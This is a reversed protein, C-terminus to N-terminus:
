NGGIRPYIYMMPPNEIDRPILTKAYDTGKTIKLGWYYTTYNVSASLKETDEKTLKITVITETPNTYIKEILPESSDVNKQIFFYVTYDSINQNFDFSLSGSDGRRGKILLNEKDITFPM